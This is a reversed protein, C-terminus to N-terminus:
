QKPQELTQALLAMFLLVLLFFGAVSLFEKAENVPIDYDKGQHNFKVWQIENKSYFEFIPQKVSPNTIKINEV